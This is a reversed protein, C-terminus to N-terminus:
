PKIEEYGAKKLANVCKSYAVQSWVPGATSAPQYECRQTDGKADRLIMVEPVCGASSLVVVLILYKM